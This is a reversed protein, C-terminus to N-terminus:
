LSPYQTLSPIGFVLYGPKRHISPTQGNDAGQFLRTNEKENPHLEGLAGEYPGIIYANVHKGITIYLTELPPVNSIL